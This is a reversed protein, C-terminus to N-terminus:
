IKLLFFSQWWFMQRSEHIFVCQKVQVDGRIKRLIKAEEYTNFHNVVHPGIFFGCFM